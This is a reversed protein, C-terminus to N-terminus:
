EGTSTRIRSLLEGLRWCFNDFTQRYKTTAQPQAATVTAAMRMGSGFSSRRNMNSTATVIITLERNATFTGRAFVFTVTDSVKIKRASSTYPPKERLKKAESAPMSEPM